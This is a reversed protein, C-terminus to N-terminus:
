NQYIRYIENVSDMLGPRSLVISDYIGKGMKSQRLSDMYTKFVFIAEVEPSILKRQLLDEGGPHAFYKPVRIGEIQIVKEDSKFVETVCCVSLFTGSLIFIALMWKLSKVSMGKTIRGMLVAFGTQVKIILGSIIKAAKEKGPATAEKEKRKFFKM